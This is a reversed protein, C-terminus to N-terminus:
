ASCAQESSAHVACPWQHMPWTSAAAEKRVQSNLLVDQQECSAAILPPGCQRLFSAMWAPLTDRSDTQLPDGGLHLFPLRPPQRAHKRWLPEISSALQLSTTCKSPSNVQAGAIHRRRQSVRDGLHDGSDRPVGGSCSSPEVEASSLLRGFVRGLHLEQPGRAPSAGDACLGQM